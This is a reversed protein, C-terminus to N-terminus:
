IKESTTVIWANEYGIQCAKVVSCTPSEQKPDNRKFSFALLNKFILFFINFFIQGVTLASIFRDRRIWVRWKLWSYDSIIGPCKLIKDQHDIARDSEIAIVQKGWSPIIWKPLYCLCTNPQSSRAPRGPFTWCYECVSVYVSFCVHYCSGRKRNHGSCSIMLLNLQLKCYWAISTCPIQASVQKVSDIESELCFLM